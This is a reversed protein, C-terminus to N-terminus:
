RKLQVAIAEALSISSDPYLRFWLEPEVLELEVLSWKENEDQILDVRAYLPKFPCQNVTNVAFDVAALDPEELEISGGFDSQVRYDGPKARKRVTHTVEGNIVIMSLEGEELVRPLFPQVMMTKRQCLEEFIKQISPKSYEIATLRHTDRSTASITPKIVIEGWGEKAAITKLDAIAGQEVFQTPIIKIGVNALDMLYKKDINWYVLEQPNIFQTISRVKNMWQEFEGFRDFYDWTSRFIVAKTTSWDFDPDDWSKRGVSLGLKRCAGMVLEDDEMVDLDYPTPNPPNVYRPDTLVVLDLM